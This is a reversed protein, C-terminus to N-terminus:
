PSADRPGGGGLKAWFSNLQKRVRENVPVKKRGREMLTDGFPGMVNGVSAMGNGIPALVSGFPTLFVGVCTLTTGLCRMIYGFIFGGHDYLLLFGVGYM